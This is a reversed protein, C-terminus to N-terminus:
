GRADLLDNVLGQASRWRYELRDLGASGNWMQRAVPNRLRALSRKLRWERDAILSKAEGSQLLTRVDRTALVHDIWGDIFERTPITPTVSAEQLQRWFDPRSWRRLDAERALIDSRWGHFRERLSSILDDRPPEAESLMINYLIAAGHMVEAFNRAHLVQRELPAALDSAMPYEWVFRVASQATASRVLFALLSDPAEALIRERLYDAEALSM